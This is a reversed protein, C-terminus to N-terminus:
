PLRLDEKMKLYQERDLEGGPGSLGPGCAGRRSGRMGRRARVLLLLVVPVALLMLFLPFGGFLPGHLWM